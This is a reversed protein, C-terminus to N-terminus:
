RSTFSGTLTAQQTNEAAHVVTKTMKSVPSNVSMSHISKWTQAVLDVPSPSKAVNSSERSSGLKGPKEPLEETQNLLTEALLIAQM